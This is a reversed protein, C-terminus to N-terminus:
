QLWLKINWNVSAARIASYKTWNGQFFIYEGHAKAPGDDCGITLDNAGPKNFEVSVWVGSTPLAITKTLRINFWGKSDSIFTQEHIVDGPTSSETAQHLRVVVDTINGAKFFRIGVMKKNAQTSLVEPTLKVAFIYKGIPITSPSNAQTGDYGVSTAASFDQPDVTPTVPEDEKSCASFLLATVLYIHLLASKM